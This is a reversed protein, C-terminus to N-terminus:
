GYCRPLFHLGKGKRIVKVCFLIRVVEELIQIRIVSDSFILISVLVNKKKTKKKQLSLM